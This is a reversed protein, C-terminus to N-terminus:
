VSNAELLIAQIVDNSYGHDVIGETIKELYKSKPKLKPRGQNFVYTKAEIVKGDSEVDLTKPSVKEYRKTLIEIQSRTIEYIAGYVVDNPNDTKVINAAGGGWTSSPVNFVLKWGNLLAKESTKWNGIREKM